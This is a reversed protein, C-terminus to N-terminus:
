GYPVDSVHRDQGAGVGAACSVDSKLDVVMHISVVQRRPCEIM